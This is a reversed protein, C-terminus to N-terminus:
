KLKKGIKNYSCKTTIVRSDGLNYFCKRVLLHLLRMSVYGLFLFSVGDSPTLKSFFDVKKLVPVLFVKKRLIISNSLKKHEYM